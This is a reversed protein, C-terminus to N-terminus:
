KFSWRIMQRLRGTMAGPSISRYPQLLGNQFCHTVQIVNGDFYFLLRLVHFCSIKCADAARQATGDCNGHIASINDGDGSIGALAARVIGCLFDCMRRADDCAGDTDAAAGDRHYGDLGCLINGFFIKSIMFYILASVTVAGTCM